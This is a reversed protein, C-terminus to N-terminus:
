TAVVVGRFQATDPTPGLRPLVVPVAVYKGPAVLVVSEISRARTGYSSRRTM